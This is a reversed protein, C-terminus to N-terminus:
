IAADETVEYLDKGICRVRKLAVARTLARRFPSGDQWHGARAITAVSQLPLVGYRSLICVIEDVDM